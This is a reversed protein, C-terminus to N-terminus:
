SQLFHENNWPKNIFDAAGAKMGEVALSISGWATIIIVPLEANLSKIDKLLQLGEEGTTKMSYNMDMVVLEIDTSELLKLAEDPNEASVPVYGGNKLLLSLSTRVAKDDDAILIKTM